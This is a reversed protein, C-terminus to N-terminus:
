ARINFQALFKIVGIIERLKTIVNNLSRGNNGFEDGRNLLQDPVNKTFDGNSLKELLVVMNKLPRTVIRRISAAIIAGLIISGILTILVLIIGNSLLGAVIKQSHGMMVFTPSKIEETLEDQKQTLSQLSESFEFYRASSEEIQILETSLSNVLANSNSIGTQRQFQILKVELENNLKQIKVKTEETPKLHYKNFAIQYSKWTSGIENKIFRINSIINSKNGMVRVVLENLSSIHNEVKLNLTNLTNYQESRQDVVNFLQKCVNAYAELRNFVQDRNTVKANKDVHENINTNATKINWVATDFQHKFTEKQSLTYNLTFQKSKNLQDLIATLNEFNRNEGSITTMAYYGYSGSISTILLIVSFGIIIKTGVSRKKLSQIKGM